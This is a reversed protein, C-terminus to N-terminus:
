SYNCNNNRTVRVRDDSILFELFYNITITAAEALTVSLSRKYLHLLRLITLAVFSRRWVRVSVTLSICFVYYPLVNYLRCPLSHCLTFSMKSNNCSM